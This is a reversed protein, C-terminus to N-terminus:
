IDCDVTLHRLGIVEQDIAKIVILPIDTADDDLRRNVRQSLEFDSGVSIRGFQASCSAAHNHHKRLRSGVIKM